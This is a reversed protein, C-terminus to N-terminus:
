KVTVQITTTVTTSGSVGKLFFTWGGLPTGTPAPNSNRAVAGCGALILALAFVACSTTFALGRTSKPTRIAIAPLLASLMVAMAVFGSPSPGNGPLSAPLATAAMTTITLNFSIGGPGPTVPNKDFSCSSNAPLGSCSLMFSMNSGAAAYLTLPIVVAKGAAVTLPSPPQAFGTVITMVQASNGPAFSADGDYQAIFSAPGGVLASTTMIAQGTADLNGSGLPIGNAFFIVSGTPKGTAMSTVTATLTVAQQALTPNPLPSLTATATSNGPPIATVFIAESASGGSIGAM